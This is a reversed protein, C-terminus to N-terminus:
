WYGGHAESFAPQKAQEKEAGRAYQERGILRLRKVPSIQPLRFVLLCGFCKGVFLM